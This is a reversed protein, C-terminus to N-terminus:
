DLLQNIRAAAFNEQKAADSPICDSKSQAVSLEEITKWLLAIQHEQSTANDILGRM